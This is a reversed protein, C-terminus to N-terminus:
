KKSIEAEDIISIKKGKSQDLIQQIIEKQIETLDVEMEGILESLQIVIPNNPAPTDIPKSM